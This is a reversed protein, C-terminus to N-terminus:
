NDNSAQELEEEFGMDILEEKTAWERISKECCEPREEDHDFTCKCHECMYGYERVVYV